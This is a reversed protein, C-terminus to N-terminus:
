LIDKVPSDAIRDNDGKVHGNMCGDGNIGYVIKPTMIKM